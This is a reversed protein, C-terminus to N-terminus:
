SEADRSGRILGRDHHLAKQLLALDLNPCVPFRSLLAHIREQAEKGGRAQHHVQSQQPRRAQGRGGGIDAETNSLILKLVAAIEKM